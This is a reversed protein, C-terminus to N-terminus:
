FASGDHECVITGKTGALINEFSETLIVIDLEKM